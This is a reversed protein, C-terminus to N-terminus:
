PAGVLRAIRRQSARSVTYPIHLTRSEYAGNLFEQSNSVTVHAGSHFETCICEIGGVHCTRTTGVLKIADRLSLDSDLEGREDADGYEASEPTVIEHTVIFRAKCM